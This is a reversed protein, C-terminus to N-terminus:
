NDDTEEGLAALARRLVNRAAQFETWAQPYDDPDAKRAVENYFDAKAIYDKAIAAVKELKAIRAAAAVEVGKKLGEQQERKHGKATTPRPRSLRASLCRQVCPTERNVQRCVTM